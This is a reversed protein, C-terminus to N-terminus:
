RTAAEGFFLSGARMEYVGLCGLTTLLDFKAGSSCVPSRWGSSRGRSAQREPDVVNRRDAGGVAAWARGAWARYADLTRTGRPRPEHSTRPGLELEDPAPAQGSSWSTM